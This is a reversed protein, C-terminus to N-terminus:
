ATQFDLDQNKMLQNFHAIDMPKGFFYGQFYKCGKNHLYDLQQENEIGEAVSNIKMTEGLALLADTVPMNLTTDDIDSVFSRDLKIEDLPLTEVLNLASFGTGFDDLSFGVGIERLCNIKGIVVELDQIVTSETIEILLGETDVQYKEITDIVNQVFDKNQLEKASINVSLELDATEPNAQWIALQQCAQDLVWKGIEIILGTKEAYPIFRDPTLVGLTPHMWRVLAEAGIIEGLHNVQPQYYLELQKNFIAQAIAQENKDRTRLDAHLIYIMAAIAACASATVFIALNARTAVSVNSELAFSFDSSAFFLFSALSLLSPLVRVWVKEKYFLVYPYMAIPILFLHQSRPVGVVPADFLSVFVVFSYILWYCIQSITRYSLRNYLYILVSCVLFLVMDQILNLSQKNIFDFIFWFVGNALLAYIGWRLSLRARKLQVDDLTDLQVPSDVMTVKCIM